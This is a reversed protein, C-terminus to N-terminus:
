LHLVYIRLIVCVIIFVICLSCEQRVTISLLTSQLGEMGHELGHQVAQEKQQAHCPVAQHYGDEQSTPAEQADGFDVQQVEGQSVEHEKKRKREIYDAVGGTPHEPHEEALQLAQQM